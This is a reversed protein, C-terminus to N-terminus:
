SLPLTLGQAQWVAMQTLATDVESVRFSDLDIYVVALRQGSRRALAMAQQLRDAKLVRNPLGTLVDYYAM